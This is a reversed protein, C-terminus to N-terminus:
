KTALDDLLWAEAQAIDPLIRHQAGRNSTITEVFHLSGNLEPFPNVIACRIGGLIKAFEVGTFYIITDTLMEPIDRFLLLRDVGAEKCFAVSRSIFDIVMESSVSSAKVHAYVYQPRQELTLEYNCKESM